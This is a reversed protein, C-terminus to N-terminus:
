TCVSVCFRCVGVGVCRSACVDVFADGGGGTCQCIGICVGVCCGEEGWDGLCVQLCVCM